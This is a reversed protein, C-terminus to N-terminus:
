RLLKVKGSQQSQGLEFVQVRALMESAQERLTNATSSIEGILADNQQTREDMEHMKAGITEMGNRQENTGQAIREIASDTERLRAEIAQFAKVTEAVLADGSATKEISQNVVAKIEQAAQASKQALSCSM